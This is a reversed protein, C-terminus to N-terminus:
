DEHLASAPQPTTGNDAGSPPPPLYRAFADEFDALRFGRVTVKGIRIKKSRVGFPKLLQALKYGPGKTDGSAVDKGWWIVWPGDSRKVLAKLLRATGIRDIQKAAFVERIAGLLVVRVTESALLDGHLAIAAKRAARSWEKGARDAIALLPEWGDQARDNLAPPIQPRAARLSKVTVPTAWAALRERIKKAKAKADRLRFREVHEHLARRKMQIPISRDVVTDPLSDGIAAVVKPGFADYHVVKINKGEGECRAVKAGRQYGANLLARLDEHKGKVDFIADAEDLLFVTRGQGDESLSRFLAAVSINSARLPRQLLPELVELLRTKGCRKEPSTVALYPTVDFAEIAWTHAVWLTVAVLQWPTLVVYGYIFKLVQALVNVLLTTPHPAQAAM